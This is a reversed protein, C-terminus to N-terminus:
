GGGRTDTQASHPQQRRSGQRVAALPPHLPTASLTTHPVSTADRAPWAAQLHSTWQWQAPSPPVFPPLVVAAHLHTHRLQPAQTSNGSHAKLTSTTNAKTICFALM